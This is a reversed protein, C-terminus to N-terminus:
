EHGFAIGEFYPYRDYLRKRFADLRQWVREQPDARDRTEGLDRIREGEINVRDRSLRLVTKLPLVPLTGKATGDDWLRQMDDPASGSSGGLALIMETGPQGELVKTQGVEPYIIVRDDDASPYQKLLHVRGVSSVFYMTVAQGRPVRYRVQVEDGVRVPLAQLLPQFQTEPRWIRVELAPKGAREMAPSDGRRHGQIGWALGFSILFLCALMAAYRWKKPALFRELTQAFEAATSYRDKPETALARRCIARLRPPTDPRDLLSRDFGAKRAQQLTALVNEGSYLPSNTLLYFLIGGLGFVDSARGIRDAQGNAQEPSLYRPTGGIQEPSDTEVWWPRSWAMGFDIVRPQGERDILVNRPNLDLHTIGQEHAFHVARAIAAVTQAAWTADLPRDKAYQELTSGPVDELVLFVRGEHLNVDYVKVLHRHPPLAALLRGESAIRDLMGPNAARHALKLVVTTQLTPHM